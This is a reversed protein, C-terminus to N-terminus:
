QAPKSLNEILAGLFRSAEGGTIARHDFTLSVPLIASPVIKDNVVKPEYRWKGIAVIAVTPPMIIPTAYRGTFKGFNSLLLTPQAFQEPKFSREMSQQRLMAIDNSLQEKNKQHANKLVPVFLGDPSDIALGLHVENFKRIAMTSADYWANLLPEQQCARIIALIVRVTIEKNQIWTDVCADEFLSVPVVQQHSQSMHMAMRRRPGRLPEYPPLNQQSEHAKKVDNITITGEVGSPQVSALDVQLKKALARVAPVAKIGQMGQHIEVAQDVHITDSESLEGAVTSSSKKQETEFDVLPAGTKVVDNEKAYLKVIRGTYPSPVDVIAKATEIAVLPEDIQIDQNETVYWKVIEGDPLGEGLDPLHFTKM